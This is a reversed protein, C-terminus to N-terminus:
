VLAPPTHMLIFYKKRRRQTRYRVPDAHWKRVAVHHAARYQKILAVGGVHMVCEVSADCECEGIALWATAILDEQVDARHSCADALDRIYNRLIRDQWLDLWHSTDM